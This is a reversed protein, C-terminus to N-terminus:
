EQPSKAPRVGLSEAMRVLDALSKATMKRMMNGRHIKVTIESVGLEHAIQKNMLGRTVHAMVEKERPTLGQFRALMGSMQEEDVRRKRDRDLATKVADLLDQDRFPKTLFDIAGAKMAKVSMPVDAHATIFIIPIRIDENALESQLDFGSPGPLRIDLILCAAAAPPNSRLFAPASDFLEVRLGVSRLLSRLAERLSPDDDVVLVVPEERAAASTPRSPGETM